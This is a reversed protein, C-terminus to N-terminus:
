AKFQYITAPAVNSIRITTMVLLKRQSSTIWFSLFIIIKKYYDLSQLLRSNQTVMWPFEDFFLVIRKDKNITDFAKTLMQFTEDWNKKAKLEAGHYFIDSIQTTFHKIQNFMPADKEGTINFFIVKRNEFFKKVLFTKGVRRRGYLACFEPFKSSMFDNLLKIEEERGVVSM